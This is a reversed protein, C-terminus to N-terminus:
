LSIHYHNFFDTLITNTIFTSLFLPFHYSLYLPKFNLSRKYLVKMTVNDCFIYFYIIVAIMTTKAMLNTTDNDALM